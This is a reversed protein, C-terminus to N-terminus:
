RQDTPRPNLDREPAFAKPLEAPYLLLLHTDAQEGDPSENTTISNPKRTVAPQLGTSGERSRDSSAPEGIFIKQQTTCCSRRNCRERTKPHPDSPPTPYPNKPEYGSPRPNSDRRPACAGHLETTSCRDTGAQEGDPAKMPPSSSRTGRSVPPPRFSRVPDNRLSMGVSAPEGTPTRPPSLRPTSRVM